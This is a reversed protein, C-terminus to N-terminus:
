SVVRSANMVLTMNNRGLVARSTYPMDHRM